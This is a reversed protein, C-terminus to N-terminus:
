INKNKLHETLGEVLEPRVSLSILAANVAAMDEM